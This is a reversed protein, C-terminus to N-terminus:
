FGDDLDISRDRGGEVQASEVDAERGLNRVQGPEHVVGPLGGRSDSGDRHRPSQGVGVANESRPLDRDGRRALGTRQALDGTRDRVQRGQPADDEFGLEVRLVECEQLGEDLAREGIVREQV